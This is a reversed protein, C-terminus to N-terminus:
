ARRMVSGPGIVFPGPSKGSVGVYASVPLDHSLSVIVLSQADFARCIGTRDLAGVALEGHLIVGVAIRAIGLGFGLELFDALRIGDQRVAVLAGGIVPHAMGGELIAARACATREAGASKAACGIKGVNELLDKAIGKGSAAAPAPTRARRAPRVQAIIHFDRQFLSEVALVRM